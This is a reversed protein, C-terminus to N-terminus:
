GKKESAAASTESTMKDVLGSDYAKRTAENHLVKYAEILKQMYAKAKQADAEEADKGHPLTEKGNDARAYHQMKYISSVKSSEEADGTGRGQRVDPHHVRVAQRFARAIDKATATTEQGCLGLIGYYGLPDMNQLDTRRRSKPDIHKEFKRAYERRSEEKLREQFNAKKRAEQRLHERYEYEQREEQDPTWRYGTSDSPFNLISAKKLERMWSERLQSYRMVKFYQCFLFAAGSAGVAMNVAVSVPLWLLFLTSTFTTLGTMSAWLLRERLTSHLVPGVTKGTVGCVYVPVPTATFQSTVVLKYLPLFVPRINTSRFFVTNLSIHSKLFRGHYKQLEKTIKDIVVKRTVRKEVISLATSTSMVFPLIKLPIRETEMRFHENKDKSEKGQQAIEKEKQTLNELEQFLEFRSILMSPIHSGSVCSEVLSLPETYCACTQNMPLYEDFPYSFDYRPGEIWVFCHPQTMYAPDKQLLEAKFNGGAATRTLWFPMVLREMSHVKIENTAHHQQVRRLVEEKDVIQFPIGFAKQDVVTKSKDLYDANVKFVAVADKELSTFHPSSSSSSSSSFSSSSSSESSTQQPHFSSNEASEYPKEEFLGGFFRANVRLSAFSNTRGKICPFSSVGFASPVSFLLSLGGHHRTGWVHNRGLFSIMRKKGGVAVTVFFFYELISKISSEM